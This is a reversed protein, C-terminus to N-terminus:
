ITGSKTRGRKASQAEEPTLFSLYVETTKISSHGLEMQLDYISKGSRLYQVAFAHRLDHFRHPTFPQATKHAMRTARKCATRWTESLHEVQQGGIHFVLSCSIAMPQRDIIAIADETLTVSRARGTKTKSLYAAGARISRRDLMIIENRRMGTLLAFRAMDAQPQELQNIVAQIDDAPPLVIPDRREKLRRTKELAPNGERWDQDEAFSLVSSLASLDRKITATTAGQAARGSVIANILSKDISAIDRDIVWPQLQELSVAYRLATTAKVTHAIHKSWEVFAEKWTVRTEGFTAGIIRDRIEQARKAAIRPDSTQLSQRHEKGNHVFRLWLTEGRWM